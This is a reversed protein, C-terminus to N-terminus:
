QCYFKKGGIIYCPTTIKAGVYGYYLISRRNQWVYSAFAATVGCVTGYGGAFRACLGVEVAVNTLFNLEGAEGRLEDAFADPMPTLNMADYRELDTEAYAPAVSAMVFSVILALACMGNVVRNYCLM